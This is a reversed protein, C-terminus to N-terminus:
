YNNKHINAARKRRRRVCQKCAAWKGGGRGHWSDLQLPHKRLRCLACTFYGRLDLNPAIDSEMNRQSVKKRGSVADALKVKANM